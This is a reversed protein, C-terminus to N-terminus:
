GWLSFLNASNIKNGDFWNQWIINELRLAVITDDDLSLVGVRWKEKPMMVYNINGPASNFTFIGYAEGYLDIFYILNHTYIYKKIYM